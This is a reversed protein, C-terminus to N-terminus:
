LPPRDPYGARGRCGAEIAAMLSLVVDERWHRAAVQVGIPLGASNAEVALAARDIHDRGVVRDSEEGLRVTTVPVAGSPVGLLNTLMSPSAASLLHIFSGHTLAPLAHVPCLMADFRGADLASLFQQNYKRREATAQWYGAASDPGTHRLLRAKRHQGLGNLLWSLVPRTSRPICSQWLLQRVEPHVEDGRLTKRSGAGGDASLLRFYLQMAEDIQPPQFSEITVGRARLVAAAELIARRVAPSSPFFGDDTWMAVRLGNLEVQEPDCWPVPSVTPDIRELGPAALVRMALALDAVSRAMPGPQGVIAEMGELNLRLGLNTLRGTTSKLGCIGCSHAPQRISGGLDNALGLASGGAAIIASEGGSSGGPSRDAHWPNITRGYLPNDSEHMLLLEPVNTKGLIIAGAARLRAVLPGDVPQVDGALHPVGLTTPTGAVHFCEKITIPVGALPGLTDGRRRAADIAAAAARAEDFRPVVVANLRPNVEEIRAIHAEVVEAASMEGSRIREALQTATLWTCADQTTPSRNM